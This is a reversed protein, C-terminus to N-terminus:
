SRRYSCARKTRPCFKPEHEDVAEFGSSRDNKSERCCQGGKMVNSNDIVGASDNPRFEKVAIGDAAVMALYWMRDGTGVIAQDNIPAEAEVILLDGNSLLQEQLVVTPGAKGMNVSASANVHGGGNDGSLHVVIKNGTKLVKEAEGITNESESAHANGIAANDVSSEDACVIDSKIISVPESCVKDPLDQVVSEHSESIGASESAGEDKPPPANKIVASIAEIIVGFNINLDTEKDHNTRRM